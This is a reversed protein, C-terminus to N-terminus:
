QRAVKGQRRERGATHLDNIPVGAQKMVSVAAVNYKQVDAELRDFGAKRQAHFPQGFDPHIDRFYDEGEHGHSHAGRNDEPKERSEVLPM